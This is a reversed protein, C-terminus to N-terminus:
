NMSGKIDAMTGCGCGGDFWDEFHHLQLLLANGSM